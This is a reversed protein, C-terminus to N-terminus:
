PDCLRALGLSVLVWIAGIMLFTATELVVFNVVLFAVGFCFFFALLWIGTRNIQM